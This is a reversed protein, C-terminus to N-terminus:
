TNAPGIGFGSAGSPASRGSTATAAMPRSGTRAGDCTKPWPQLASPRRSGRPKTASCWGRQAVMEALDRLTPKYRLRWLVVLAIVDSPYQAPNLVTGGRENFPKGCRRSRFRRYGQVTREPWETLAVSRCEICRM